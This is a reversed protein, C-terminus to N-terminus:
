GFFNFIPPYAMLLELGLIRWRLAESDTKCALMMPWFHSNPAGQATALHMELNVEHFRM